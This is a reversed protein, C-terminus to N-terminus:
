RSAGAQALLRQARARVPNIVTQDNAIQELMPAVAGLEDLSNEKAMEEMRKLEDDLALKQYRHYYDLRRGFELTTALNQFIRTLEQVAPIQSYNYTAQRNRQSDRYLLTKVGTSALGKKRSDLDGDFYNTRKTLDFLRTRTADSLSFDVRFTDSESDATLKGDSYYTANGSQPISIAYHEPQSGPFSFNFSVTPVPGQARGPFSNGFFILLGLTLAIHRPSFWRLQGSKGSVMSFSNHWFNARHPPNM